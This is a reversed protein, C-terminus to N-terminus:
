IDENIKYEVTPYVPTWADGGYIKNDTNLSPDITSKPFVLSINGYVSNGKAEKAKMIAISPMPLGGLQLSKM